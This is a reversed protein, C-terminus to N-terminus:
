GGFATAGGCMSLAQGTIASAEPGVLFAVFGAIEEPEIFRGLPFAKVVEAKAQAPTLGKGHAIEAIGDTAMDTDVWGPVVANCTIKREAVEHATARVLGLVGAKSACYAAYGPVGFKGLVSSIALLRGGSRVAPVAAQFTYYVGLLNTELIARARALDAEGEEGPRGLPVRGSVGAGAVVIDLGGFAKQALEVALVSSGPERVDARLHRAKGGGNAIEGVVEAIKREDRGTVVVQAGRSALLLAISRGIGRGGGTVWAVKGSLSKQTTM